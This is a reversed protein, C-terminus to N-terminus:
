SKNGTHARLVEQVLIALGSAALVLRLFRFPSFALVLATWVSMCWVCSFLEAVPTTAVRSVTVVGGAKIPIQQLGVRYRLRSFVAWPGAEDVLMSALRWAALGLTVLEVV